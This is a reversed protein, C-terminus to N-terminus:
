LTTLPGAACVDGPLENFPLIGPWVGSRRFWSRHELVIRQPNTHVNFKSFCLELIRELVM